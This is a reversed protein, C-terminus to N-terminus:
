SPHVRPAYPPTGATAHIMRSRLPNRRTGARLRSLRDGDGETVEGHEGARRVRVPEQQQPCQSGDLLESGGVLEPSPSPARMRINWRPLANRGPISASGRYAAIRGRHASRRHALRSPRDRHQACSPGPRYWVAIGDADGGRVVLAVRTTSGSRRDRRRTLGSRDPSRCGTGYDRSTNRAQVIVRHVHDCWTLAGGVRQHRRHSRLWPATRWTSAVM